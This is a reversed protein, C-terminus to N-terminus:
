QLANHELLNLYEVKLNGNYVPVTLRNKKYIEFVIRSKTVKEYIEPLLAKNLLRELMIETDGVASVIFPPAIHTNNVLITTGVSSIPSTAIVRQGNISIADAKAANLINIIDRLDSAQVLMFDSAQEINRTTLPSDNFLIELGEGVVESLGIDKKLSDLFALNVSESQLEIDEQSDAITKRLSVIRSQLYSQEDLYNKLLEDRAEVEDGPFNSSLPVKTNFQWTMLLGIALGTILFTPLFNNRM